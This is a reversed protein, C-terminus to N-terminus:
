KEKEEKIAKYLLKETNPINEPSIAKFKQEDDDTWLRNMHHNLLVDLGTTTKPAIVPTFGKGKLEMCDYLVWDDDFVYLTESRISNHLILSSTTTHIFINNSFQKKLFDVVYVMELMNLHYETHEIIIIEHTKALRIVHSLLNEMANSCAHFETRIINLLSNLKAIDNEDLGESLTNREEVTVAGVKENEAFINKDIPLFDTELMVILNKRGNERTAARLITEGLKHIDQVVIM